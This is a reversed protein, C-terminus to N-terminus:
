GHGELPDPGYQNPGISGRLFGLEVLLYLGFFFLPIVTMLYITTPGDETQGLGLLQLVNAAILIAFFLAVLWTPRNRDHARKVNLAFSPYLMVLGLIIALAQGGTSYGVAELALGVAILILAGIWYSKRGIRGDIDTLLFKWRM